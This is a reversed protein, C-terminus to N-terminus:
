DPLPYPSDLDHAFRAAPKRLFVRKGDPPPTPATRGVLQVAVYGWLTFGELRLPLRESGSSVWLDAEQIKPQAHRTSPEGTPVPALALKLRRARWRQGLASVVEEGAPRVSLVYSKTGTFVEYRQAQDLEPPLTRILYGVSAPDHVRDRVPIEASRGPRGPKRKRGTLVHRGDDRTITTERRHRNEHQRLVFRRPGPPATAVTAEFSDRMRWLLDLVENTEARGRLHVASAVGDETEITLEARAVPVANWSASYLLRESRAAASASTGPGVAVALALSVALLLSRGPRVHSRM